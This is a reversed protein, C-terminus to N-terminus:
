QGARVCRVYHSSIKSQNIVHGNSFFVPWAYSSTSAYTTSSWYSSAYADPFFNTDIIPYSLTDDTISELEKINPLRWNDNGALSLGECYSIADEWTMQGGEGQQWMLGTNNDTITLDGNDTFHGYNLEQGRVCKVYYNNSKVYNNVYGNGFSVYWAYSSNNANTTSSWYRSMNTGPFYTTDISPYYTGYNVISLLEKKSPLRWDTYDALTLDNSYSVADDWTRTIDDDEKQWILGTVNDTVTGDGNDTYSPPNITYDSDEGWTDTYSTTQGTDPLNLESWRDGGDGNGNGGGGNCGTVVLAIIGLTIFLKLLNLNISKLIRIQMEISVKKGLTAIEKM